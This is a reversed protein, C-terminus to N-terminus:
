NWPLTEKDHRLRHHLTSVFESFELPCPGMSDMCSRVYKNYKMHGGSHVVRNPRLKLTRSGKASPMMIFNGPGETDFGHFHILKHNACCRPIVHHIEVLSKMHFRDRYARMQYRSLCLVGISKLRHAIVSSSVGMQLFLFCVRSSM